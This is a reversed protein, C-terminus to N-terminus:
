DFCPELAEHGKRANSHAPLKQLEVRAFDADLCNTLKEVYDLHLAMDFFLNETGRLSSSVEYIGWAGDGVLGYGAEFLRRAKEALGEVRHRAAM